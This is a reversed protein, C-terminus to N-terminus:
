RTIFWPFPRESGISELARVAKERIESRPDTLAINLPEPGAEGIAVM